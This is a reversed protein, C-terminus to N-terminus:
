RGLEHRLNRRGVFPYAPNIQLRLGDNERGFFVAAAYNVYLAAALLAIGVAARAWVCSSSPKGACDPSRRPLCSSRPCSATFLSM